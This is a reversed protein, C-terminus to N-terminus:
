IDLRTPPLYHTWSLNAHLLGPHWKGNPKASLSRVANGKRPPASQSSVAYGIQEPQVIDPYALYFQRMLKLNQYSWGKGYDAGLREAINLLLQEGYDARRKGGQEEVVIERGIMWYAVVQSTNVSRAVAARASEVIVRVRELLNKQVVKRNM